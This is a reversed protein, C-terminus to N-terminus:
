PLATFGTIEDTAKIKTVRRAEEGSTILIAKDRPLTLVSHEPQNSHNAIFRATELDHGGGLYLITDCNNIITTSSEGGYMNTLQSISQLMISVSINRSRIISILLEFDPIRAAAAFDDLFINVPVPLEGSELEDADDILTQMIQYCIVSSLIHYSRDHDSSNIFLATKQKGFCHIDISEESAFFKTYDACDFPDLAENAFELICSFTKDANRTGKLMDYKRAAYSRPNEDTWDELINIGRGSQIAQHMQVVSNMNQQKKPLSEVVYGILMSIYRTAAKEWFPEYSDLAPVLITALKKIDSERISGDEYRRIYNLPNYCCSKATNVLDILLVDYGKAWLSRCYKSYLKGKTDSVVFSGSPNYINPAIYGTTKGAGSGGIVLDNRNLGTKKGDNSRKIGSAIIRESFEENSNM